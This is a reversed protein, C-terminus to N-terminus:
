MSTVCYMADVYEKQTCKTVKEIFPQDMGAKILEIIISNRTDNTGKEIGENLKDMVLEDFAVCMRKDEREMKEILGKINMHVAIVGETEESMNRFEDSQFLAQLKTKDRRSQLAQFFYKLDTEYECADLLEGEVVRCSYEQMQSQLARRAETPIEAYMQSLLNRGQYKGEGLFLVLNFVPILKDQYKMRSKKERYLLYEGAELHQRHNMRIQREYEGTDYCMVREPMGYDSETEIEMGFLIPLTRHKMLIDREWEGSGNGISKYRGDVRVLDQPKLEFRDGDFQNNWIECFRETNAFYERDVIDKKGM